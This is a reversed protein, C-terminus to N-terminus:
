IGPYMRQAYSKHVFPWIFNRATDTHLDRACARARAREREPERERERQSEEREEREGRLCVCVCPTRQQEESGKRM